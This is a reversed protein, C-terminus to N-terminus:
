NSSGTSGFQRRYESPLLNVRRLFLKRFSGSNLYGLRHSIEDLSLRTTALLQKAMEIKLRQIYALPTDGTSKKFRREFTRTSMCALGSLQAVHIPENLHRNIWQQIKMMQADGHATKADYIEYAKQFVCSFDHYFHKATRAALELGMHQELLLYALDTSAGAGGSCYLNGNSIVLQESKLHVRPYRKRFQEAMAWHTTAQRGDLLGSEALLFAGTCISALVTGGAFQRRLWDTMFGLRALAADVDYISTIIFIDPRRIDEVACHVDLVLRNQCQIPKGDMSAYRVHLDRTRGSEGQGALLEGAQEFIDKLGVMLGAYAQDFGFIYINM